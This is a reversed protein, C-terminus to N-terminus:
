IWGRRSAEVGAQFRTDVGLDAMMTAVRRRV